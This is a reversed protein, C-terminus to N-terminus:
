VLIRGADVHGTEEVAVGVLEHQLDVARQEDDDEVRDRGVDDELDDREDHRQPHIVSGQFDAVVGDVAFGGVGDAGFAFLARRARWGREGHPLPPGPHPFRAAGAESSAPGFCKARRPGGSTRASWRPTSLGTEALSTATPARDRITM